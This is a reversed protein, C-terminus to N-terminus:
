IANPDTGDVRMGNLVVANLKLTVTKNANLLARLETLGDLKISIRTTRTPVTTPTNLTHQDRPHSL